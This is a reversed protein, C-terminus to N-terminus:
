FANSKASSLSDPVLVCITSTGHYRKRSLALPIVEGDRPMLESAAVPRNNVASVSGCVSVHEM